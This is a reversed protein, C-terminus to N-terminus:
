KDENSGGKQIRFYEEVAFAVIASKKVGKSEAIEEIMKM